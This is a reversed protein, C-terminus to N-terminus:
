FDNQEKICYKGTACMTQFDILIDCKVSQTKLFEGFNVMKQMKAVKTWKYIHSVNSAIKFSVKETSEFVMM